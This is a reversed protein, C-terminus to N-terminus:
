LGGWKITLYSNQIVKSLTTGIPQGSYSFSSVISSSELWNKSLRLGIFTEGGQLEYSQFKYSGVIEVGMRHSHLEDTQTVM